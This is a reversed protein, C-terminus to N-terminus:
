MVRIENIYIKKCILWLSNSLHLAERIVARPGFIAERLKLAQGALKILRVL